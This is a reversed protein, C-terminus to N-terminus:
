TYYNPTSFQFRQPLDINNQSHKCEILTSKKNLIKTFITYFINTNLISGLSLPSRLITKFMSRWRREKKKLNHFLRNLVVNNVMTYYSDFCNMWDWNGLRSLLKYENTACFAFKRISTLFIAGVFYWLMEVSYPIFEKWLELAEKYANLSWLQFIVSRGSVLERLLHVHPLFFRNDRNTGNTSEERAGLTWKRHWCTKWIHSVSRGKNPVEYICIHAEMRYATKDQGCTQHESTWFINLFKIRVFIWIPQRNQRRM